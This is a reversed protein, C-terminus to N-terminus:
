RTLLSFTFRQVTNEHFLVSTHVNSFKPSDSFDPLNVCTAKCSTIVFFNVHAKKLGKSDSPGQCSSRAEGYSLSSYLNYLFLLTHIFATSFALPLSVIGIHGCEMKVKGFGHKQLSFGYRNLKKPMIENILFFPCFHKSYM